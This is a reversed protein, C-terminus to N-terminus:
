QPRGAKDWHVSAKLLRDLDKKVKMPDPNVPSRWMWRGMPDVLYLHAAMSQGAAPQLWQGLAEAPVRLVTTAPTASVAERLAPQIPAEDTVLWVKDLRDRERGLMERLQRQMYLRTECDGVCSGGDVVVLLWQQHLSSAAVAQGDLTRLPLGAPLEPQAAILEGYAQGQPKIVYFTFYSALVPLACLLVVVVMMIRGRRTQEMQNLARVAEDEAAVHVTLDLAHPDADGPSSYKSGSM